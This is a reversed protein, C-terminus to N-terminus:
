VAELSQDCAVNFFLPRQAEKGDLSLTSSFSKIVLFTRLSAGLLM